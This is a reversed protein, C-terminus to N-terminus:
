GDLLGRVDKRVCFVVLVNFNDVVIEESVKDLSMNSLVGDEHRWTERCQVVTDELWNASMMTRIKWARGEGGEAPAQQDAFAEKAKRISGLM